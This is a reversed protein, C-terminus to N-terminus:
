SVKIVLKGASAWTMSKTLAAKVDALPVVSDVPVRVKGSAALAVIADLDVANSKILFNQFVVGDQQAPDPGFNAISCFKGGKKLVKGAKAWDEQSGVCDYIMDFDQGGM